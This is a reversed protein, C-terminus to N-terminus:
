LRVTVGLMGTRVGAADVFACIFVETMKEFADVGAEANCRLLTALYELLGVLTRPDQVDGTSGASLPPELVNAILNVANRNLRFQVNCQGWIVNKQRVVNLLSRIDLRGNQASTDGTDVVCFRLPVIKEPQPREQASVPASLSLVLALPLLAVRLPARGLAARRPTAQSHPRPNM